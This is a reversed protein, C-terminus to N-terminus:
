PIPLLAVHPTNADVFPEPGCSKELRATQRHSSTFEAADLAVFLRDFRCAINASALEQLDMGLAALEFHFDQKKTFNPARRRDSLGEIPFGFRASVLSERKSLFTACAHKKTRSWFVPRGLAIPSPDLLEPSFSLLVSSQFRSRSIRTLRNVPIHDFIPSSSRNDVSDTLRHIRTACYSYFEMWAVM